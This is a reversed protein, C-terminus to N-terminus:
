RTVWWGIGLLTAWTCLCMFLSFLAWLSATKASRFLYHMNSPPSPRTDDPMSQVIKKIRAMTARM